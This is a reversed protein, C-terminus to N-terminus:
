LFEGFNKAIETYAQTIQTNFSATNWAKRSFLNWELKKFFLEKNRSDLLDVKLDGLHNQCSTQMAKQLSKALIEMAQFVFIFLPIELLPKLSTRLMAKLETDHERVLTCKHASKNSFFLDMLSAPYFDLIKGKTNIIPFYPYIRCLLPRMCHPNCLGACECSLFYLVFKKGNQLTFEEKRAPTTINQIGGKQTYYQYEGELLALTVASQNLIKFNEGLFNKCCYSDCTLYCEKFHVFELKYLEEWNIM